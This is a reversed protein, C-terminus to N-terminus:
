DRSVRKKNKLLAFIYVIITLISIGYSLLYLKSYPYTVEVIRSKTSIPVNVGGSPNASIDNSNIITGDDKIELGRYYSIPITLVGATHNAPMNIALKGNISSVKFDTPNNNIFVHKQYVSEKLGKDINNISAYDMISSSQTSKSDKIYNENYSLRSQEKKINSYLDYYKFINISSMFIILAIISIHFYKKNIISSAIIRSSALAIFLTTFITIRYVFQIMSIPTKNLIAWGFLDTAMFLFVVSVILLKKEASNLKKYRFIAVLLAIFIALGISFPLSVANSLISDLMNSLSSGYLDYKYPSAVGGNKYMQLIPILIPASVLGTLIVPKVRDKLAQIKNKSTLLEITWYVAILICAMFATLIHSNLILVLGLILLATGYKKHKTIGYLGAAVLPLFSIAISEGLAGRVFIDIFRYLSLSYLISFVLAAKHNNNIYKYSIYSTYLTIFTLAIYFIYFSYQLSGILKYLVYIPYVLVWPYFINVANGNQNFVEYNIPSQFINSLGLVRNFHFVIDHQLWLSRSGLFSLSFIISTVLFLLFLFTKPYKKIYNKPM